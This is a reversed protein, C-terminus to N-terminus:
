PTWHSMTRRALRAVDPLSHWLAHRGPVPIDTTDIGADRCATALRSVDAVPSLRSRAGHVLQVSFSHLRHGCRLDATMRGRSLAYGLHALDTQSTRPAPDERRPLPDVSDAFATNRVVYEDLVRDEGRTARLLSVLSWRRIAVPEVLVAHEVTVLGTTTAAAAISAGMSFGVLTVPNSGLRANSDLATEVMRRAVPTFDGRRLGRREQRSLRAPGYGCGPTDVVTVQADWIDALLAFRQLEFPEICALFGMFLLVQRPADPRGVVAARSPMADHFETVRLTM